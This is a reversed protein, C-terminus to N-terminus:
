KKSKSRTFYPNSSRKIINKISKKRKQTHHLNNKQELNSQTYSKSSPKKIIKKRKQIYYSNKHKQELNSKSSPKKISKKHKQTHYQIIPNNINSEKLPHDHTIGSMECMKHIAENIDNINNPISSAMGYDIMRIEGTQINRYYHNMPDNTNAIGHLVLNRIFQYIALRHSSGHVNKWHRPDYYEMKILYLPKIYIDANQPFPVYVDDGNKNFADNYGYIKNKGNEYYTVEYIEPGFGYKHAKIQLRIENEVEKKIKETNIFIIKYLIPKKINAINVYTITNFRTSHHFYIPITNEDDVKGDKLLLPEFTIVHPDRQDNLNIQSNM